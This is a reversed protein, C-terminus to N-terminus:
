RSKPPIGVCKHTKTRRELKRRLIRKKSAKTRPRLRPM